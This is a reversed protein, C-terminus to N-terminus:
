NQIKLWSKVDICICSKGLYISVLMYDQQDGALVIAVDLTNYDVFSLQNEDQSFEPFLVTSM